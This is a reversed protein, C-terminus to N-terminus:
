DLISGGSNDFSGWLAMRWYWWHDARNLTRRISIAAIGYM